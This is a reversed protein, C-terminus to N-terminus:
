RDYGRGGGKRSYDSPSTVAEPQTPPTSISLSSLPLAFLSLSLSLCLASHFCQRPLLLLQLEKRGRCILHDAKSERWSLQRVLSTTPFIKGAPDRYEYFTHHSLPHSKQGGTDEVM